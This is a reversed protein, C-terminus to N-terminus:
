DTALLREMCRKDDSCWLEKESRRFMGATKEDAGCSVCKGECAVSFDLVLGTCAQCVNCKSM